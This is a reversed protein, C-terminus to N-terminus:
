RRVVTKIALNKDKKNDGDSSGLNGDPERENHSKVALALSRM